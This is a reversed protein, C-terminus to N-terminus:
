LGMRGSLSTKLRQRTNELEDFISDLDREMYQNQIAIYRYYDLSVDRSFYKNITREINEDSVGFASMFTKIQKKNPPNMPIFKEFRGPRDILNSALEEPYNTTAIIFSHEWSMEGDLFTLLDETGYKTRETVEELIFVVDAGKQNFLQRYDKLDEIRISKPVIFTYFDNQSEDEFLRIIERTKGTGPPGYLLTGQKHRIKVPATELKQRLNRFKEFDAKLDGVSRGLDIYQDVNLVSYKKFVLGHENSPNIQYIGFPLNCNDDKSFEYVRFVYEPVRNYIDMGYGTVLDIMTTNEDYDPYIKEYNQTFYNIIMNKDTSVVDAIHERNNTTYYFGGSSHYEFKSGTERYKRRRSKYSLTSM